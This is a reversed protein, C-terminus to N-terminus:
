DRFHPNDPFMIFLNEDDERSIMASIVRAPATMM